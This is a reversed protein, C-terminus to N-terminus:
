AVIKDIIATVAPLASQTEAGEVYSKGEDSRQVFLPDIPISGLFPVRCEEAMRKGGGSGFIETIQGCHSCRFGSMNEIVGIVPLQLKECFDISKRVDFTAVQQPTTVIVAGDPKATQV